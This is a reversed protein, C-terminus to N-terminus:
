GSCSLLDQLETAKLLVNLGVESARVRANGPQKEDEAIHKLTGTFLLANGRLCDISHEFQADKAAQLDLM